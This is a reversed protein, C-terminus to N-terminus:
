VELYLISILQVQITLGKERWSSPINNNNDEVFVTWDSDMIQAHLIPRVLASVLNKDHM